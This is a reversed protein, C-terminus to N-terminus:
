KNGVILHLYNFRARTSLEIRCIPFCVYSSFDFNNNIRSVYVVTHKLVLCSGWCGRERGGGGGKSGGLFPQLVCDPLLWSILDFSFALALELPADSGVSLCSAVCHLPLLGLHSILLCSPGTFSYVDDGARISLKRRALVRQARGCETGTVAQWLLHRM